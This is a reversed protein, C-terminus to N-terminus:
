HLDINNKLHWELRVCPSLPHRPINTKSDTLVYIKDKYPNILKVVEDIRKQIIKNYKGARGVGWAIIESEDIAKVIYRDNLTDTIYEETISSFINVINVVNYGQKHVNNIVYLTTMDLEVIDSSSPQIMIVTIIKEKGKSSWDKKLLYRHRGDESAVMETKLISKTTVVKM